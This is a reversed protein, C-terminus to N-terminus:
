PRLSRGFIARVLRRRRTGAPLLRNVKKMDVRIKLRTPHLRIERREDFVPNKGTGATNELLIREYFPTRRAANWFAEAWDCAPTNWPKWVGAFHVIYPNKRAEGYERWLGMPAHSMRERRSHGGYEWDILMNWKQDLFRVRGQCFMNLVDQDVMHWSFELTKKVLMEATLERRLATLNLLLVGAQFYELPRKLELRKTLYRETDPDSKFAGIVDMDRVAALLYREIDTDYLKGVDQRVAMDADLYLVKEYDPLVKLIFYRYFTERSFHHHVPFDIGRVCGRIDCFRISIEPRGEALAAISKRTNAAIDTHLVIIDYCRKKDTCDLVSRLMVALYPAFREDSALVLNVSGKGFVPAPFEQPATDEFIVYPLECCKLGAEKKARTFWIGFMRESLYACARYEQESYESFDTEKEFEDLLPFLWEMYKCFYPKRMIYMNMFYHQKSKIYVEAAERYDPYMRKLITLMRDLDQKRHFQCYQEYVTSNSKERLTAIIDYKKIVEEMRADTLGFEPMNERISECVRYPPATKGAPSGDPRLPFERSFDFYRRYHFFGYYEADANKWAWYQATLECYAKNKESVSAGENDKLADSLRFDALEAGVQIKQLLRSEPVLSDKHCSVFLQIDRM